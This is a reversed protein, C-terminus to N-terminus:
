RCEPKKEKLYELETDFLEVLEVLSAPEHIWGFGNPWGYRNVRSWLSYASYFEPTLYDNVEGRKIVHERLLLKENAYCSKIERKHWGEWLLNFGIKLNKKAYRFTQRLV